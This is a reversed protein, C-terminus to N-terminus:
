SMFILVIGLVGAAWFIWNIGTGMTPNNPFFKKWIGSIFGVSILFLVTGLLDWFSFPHFADWLFVTDIESGAGDPKVILGLVFFLIVVVACFAVAITNLVKEDRDPM